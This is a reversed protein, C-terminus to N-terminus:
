SAAPDYVGFRLTTIIADVIQHRPMDGAQATEWGAYLLGWFTRRVWVHSFDPNLGADPRALVQEIEKEMSHLADVLSSDTAILPEHFLYMLISGMDVHEEVVRRLADHLPGSHPEARQIAQRSREVVHHVVANILDAREPFYRHVTTRGVQAASAVDALSAQSDSALVEVAADLIAQRTRARAGTEPPHPSTMGEVIVRDGLISRHKVTISCHHEM